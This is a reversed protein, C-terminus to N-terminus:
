EDGDLKIYDRSVYGEISRSPDEALRIRCWGEMLELIEVRDGNRLSGVKPYGTSPGARVNLGKDADFVTGM